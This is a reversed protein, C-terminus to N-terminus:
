LRNPAVHCQESYCHECSCTKPQTTTDPLPSPPPNTSTIAEKPPCTDDAALPNSSKYQVLETETSPNTAVPHIEDKTAPPAKRGVHVIISLVLCAMLFGVAIGVTVLLAPSIGDSATSSLLADDFTQQRHRSANAKMEEIVTNMQEFHNLLIKFRSSSSGENNAITTNINYFSTFSCVVLILGIVIAIWVPFHLCCVNCELTATRKQISRISEFSESIDRHIGAISESSEDMRGEMDKISESSEDMRGQIDAISRSSEKMRWEMDKISASSEKMRWEMDMISASSETSM